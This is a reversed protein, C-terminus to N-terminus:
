GIFIAGLAFRGTGGYTIVATHKGEKLNDFLFRECEDRNNRGKVEATEKGDITVTVGSKDSVECGLGFSSGEFEVTITAGQEKAMLADGYKMVSVGSRVTWKDDYKLDKVTLVKINSALNTTYTDSPLKHAAIKAKANKLLASMEEIVCDAYVKYGTDNPHVIDTVYDSFAKGTSKLEDNLAKGVNITPIGYYDAVAKHAKLATYETGLRSQDTVLVMVIDAKPFDKSIAKVLSEMTYVSQEETFTYYTDNIAFEIFILDPNSPKVDRQYRFLGFYSTTGGIAANTETITASPYSEKLWKTTLARWSTENAASAGHGDTVSGGFYAVNLKKEVTLKYLTNNLNRKEGKVGTKFTREKAFINTMNGDGQEKGTSTENNGDKNPEETGQSSAPKKGSDNNDKEDTCGAFSLAFVLVLVLSLIRKM